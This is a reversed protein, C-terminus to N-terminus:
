NPIFALGDVTDGIDAAGFPTHASGAIFAAGDLLDYAQVTGGRLGVWLIGREIDYALGGALDPTTFVPTFTNTGPDFTGVQQAGWKSIWLQDAPWVYTAGVVDTQAFSDVLTGDPLYKFLTGSPGSGADFHARWVHTGDFALDENCCFSVPLPGVESNLTLGTVDIENHDALFPSGSFLTGTGTPALGNLFNEPTVTVTTGPVGGVVPTVALRDEPDGAFDEEDTGAYLIGDGRGCPSFGHQADQIDTLADDDQNDSGDLAVGDGAGPVAALVLPEATFLPPLLEGTAEDRLPDGFEDVEFVKALGSNLYLPGCSTPAYKDNNRGPSQRTKMDVIIVGGDPDPTWLIKTSSRCKKGLKGNKFVDISDTGVVVTESEGCEDVDVPVGEIDTVIWEAPATDVILVPPGGPNNYTMTFDYESTELLGVGVVLDIEGDEDRDEGSTLVKLLGLTQTEFASYTVNPQSFNYFALRGDNFTGAINLEEVGDVFVKLSTTTFEFRFVYSTNDAWGTAGLNAARQIETVGQGTPSCTANNEDFHGWFEDDTPIGTVRSVALGELGTSGATCSPLNADDFDFNQEEQKWDVLLFNASANSTDGETFGLAFGIFDNDGTQNVRITGEIALGAVDFDSIFVAPRGNISQTVTLGGGSVIWTAAGGPYLEESWTSLDVDAAHAGGALLASTGAAIALGRAIKIATYSM